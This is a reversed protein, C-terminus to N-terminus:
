KLKLPKGGKPNLRWPKDIRRTVTKHHGGPVQKALNLPCIDPKVEWNESLVWILYQQNRM